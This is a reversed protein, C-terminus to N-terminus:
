QKHAGYAGRLRAVNNYNADFTGTLGDPIHGAYTPLESHFTGTWMGGTQTNGDITWSVNGPTVTGATMATPALTLSWGSSVDFDSVTGSLRDTDFNATFRATATFEGHNAQVGLPISYQGIAAGEYIASGQLAAFGTGGSVAPGTTMSFASYSYQAAKRRWWGFYMYEADDESVSATRSTRFTWTGDGLVYGRGTHRISCANADEAATTSCQFDGTAGQFSGSIRPTLDDVDNDDTDTTRDIYATRGGTPFQSSSSRIM